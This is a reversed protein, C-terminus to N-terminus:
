WGLLPWGPLSLMSFSHSAGFLCSQALTARYPSGVEAEDMPNTPAPRSGGLAAHLKAKAESPLGSLAAKLEDPSAGAAAAAIGTSAAAGM